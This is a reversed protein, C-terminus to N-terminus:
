HQIISYRYWEVTDGGCDFQRTTESVQFTGMIGYQFANWDNRVSCQNRFQFHHQQKSVLYNLMSTQMSWHRQTDTFRIPPYCSLESSLSRTKSELLETFNNSITKLLGDFEETRREIEKEIDKTAADKVNLNIFSAINLFNNNSLWVETSELPMNMASHLFISITLLNSIGTPRCRRKFDNASVIESFEKM